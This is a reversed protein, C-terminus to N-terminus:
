GLSWEKNPRPSGPTTIFPTLFGRYIVQFLHSQRPNNFGVVESLLIGGNQSHNSEKQFVCIKQGVYGKFCVM